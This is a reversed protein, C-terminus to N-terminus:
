ARQIDRLAQTRQRRRVLALRGPQVRRAHQAQQLAQRQQPGLQVRLGPREVAGRRGWVAQRQADLLLCTVANSPGSRVKYFLLESKAGPIAVHCGLASAQASSMVVKLDPQLRQTSKFAKVAHVQTQHRFATGGDTWSISAKIPLM